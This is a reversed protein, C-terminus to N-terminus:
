TADNSVLICDGSVFVSSISVVSKGNGSKPSSFLM